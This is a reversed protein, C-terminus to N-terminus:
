RAGVGTVLPMRPGGSARSGVLEFHWPEHALPRHLPLGLTTVLSAALAVDGGLDVALGKEHLSSGPRAVHDDAIEPDGYRALADAWLERQEPSSRWGSVVYVSGRAALLLRDVAAELHPHLGDSPYAISVPAFRSPDLVARASAEVDGVAVTVQVAEAGPGCMCDILRAGNASAFARAQAVQENRGYPAAEAVAALAAADAALRARERRSFGEGLEMSFRAGAMMLLLSMGVIALTM